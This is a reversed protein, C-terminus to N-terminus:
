EKSKFNRWLSIWKDVQEWAAKEKDELDKQNEYKYHGLIHHAIEHLIGCKDYTNKEGDKGLYPAGFIYPTLVIIGKKGKDIGRTLNIYYAPNVKKPDASLMVFDIENQVRDVIEKPLIQIEECFITYERENISFKKTLYSEFIIEIQELCYYAM